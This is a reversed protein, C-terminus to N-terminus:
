AKKRIIQKCTNRIGIRRGFDTAVSQIQQALERTPALVLAIPGEGRKLKEQYSIHVLAPLIYAL